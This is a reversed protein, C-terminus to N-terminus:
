HHFNAWPQSNNMNASAGVPLIPGVSNVATNVSYAHTHGRASNRIILNSVGSVLFGYPGNTTAANSDLRNADATLQYGSFRNLDATNGFLHCGGTAVFGSENSRVTCNKVTSGFHVRIGDGGNGVSTCETVTCVFAADIGHFNDTATCRSVTSKSLVSIGSNSNDRATSDTITVSDALAFGHSGNLSAVCGTVTAGNGTQIGPGSNNTAVCDKIVVDSGVALGASVSGGTNDSVRLREFIGNTGPIRIGGASWGRVTGNRIAINKREAPANIGTVSGAGGGILAFGNLDITVNDASITIGGGDATASLNRALYYSGPTTITFPLSAIPTRPEVEELTKMTPAPAGPPTLSGQPIASRLLLATVICVLVVLARTSTM